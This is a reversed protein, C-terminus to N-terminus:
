DDAKVKTTSSEKAYDSPLDKAKPLKKDKDAIEAASSDDVPYAFTGDTGELILEELATVCPCSTDVETDTCTCEAVRGGGRNVGRGHAPCDCAPYGRFATDIAQAAIAEAETGIVAKTKKTRAM